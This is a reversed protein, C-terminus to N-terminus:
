AAAIRLREAVRKRGMLPLLDRLEPGHEEGTLALRLPAFLTRGKRGTAEKLANTWSSWVTEDWPEAPLLDLAASLFEHEGDIVPPVITGSVVDWWGRAESLLDGLHDDVNDVYLIRGKGRM